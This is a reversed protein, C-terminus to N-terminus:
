GAGAIIVIKVETITFFNGIDHELQYKAAAQWAKRTFEIAYKRLWVMMAVVCGVLICLIRM